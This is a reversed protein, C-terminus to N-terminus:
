ERQTSVWDIIDEGAESSPWHFDDQRYSKLDNFPAGSTDTAEGTHTTSFTSVSTTNLANQPLEGTNTLFYPAAATTESRSKSSQLVNQALKLCRGAELCVEKLGNTNELDSKTRALVMSLIQFGKVYNIGLVINRTWLDRTIEVTEIISHINPLPSIDSSLFTPTQHIRSGGGTGSVTRNMIREPANLHDRIMRTVAYCLGLSARYIDYKIFSQYFNWWSDSVGGQSRAFDRYAILIALAARIFPPWSMYFQDPKQSLDCQYRLMTTRHGLIDFLFHYFAFTRPTNSSIWLKTLRSIEEDLASKFLQMEDAAQIESSPIHEFSQRSRARQSINQEMSAARTTLRALSIFCSLNFDGERIRTDGPTVVFEAPLRCDCQDDRVTHPVGNQISYEYDMVRYIAWLQRRREVEESSLKKKSDFALPDRHLGLTFAMKQMVGLIACMGNPGDVETLMYKAIFILLFVELLGLSPKRLGEHTLVVMEVATLLSSGKSQKSALSTKGLGNTSVDCIYGLSLIVTFQLLWITDITDDRNFHVYRQFFTDRHVFPMIQGVTAWFNEVLIDCIPKPPLIDLLYKTVDQVRGHWLGNDPGHRLEHYLRSIQSLYQWSEHFVPDRELYQRV